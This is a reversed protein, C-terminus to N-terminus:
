RQGSISRRVQFHRLLVDIDVLDRLKGAMEDNFMLHTMAHLVIDENSLVAFRSGSDDQVGDLLDKSKPKLRATRPLVNHHLDIEVEREVHMM